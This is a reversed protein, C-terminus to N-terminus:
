TIRMSFWISVCYTCSDYESILEVNFSKLPVVVFQYHHYFLLLSLLLLLSPLFLLSLLSLLLISDSM